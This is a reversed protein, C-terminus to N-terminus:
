NNGSYQEHIKKIGKYMTSLCSSCNTGTSYNQNFITNYLEIMKRKVMQDKAKGRIINPMLDQLEKIIEEPIDTRVEVETTKQWFGKPCSQSSISSKVKMFCLCIKCQGSPKFYYVCSKCIDIREKYIKNPVFFKNM